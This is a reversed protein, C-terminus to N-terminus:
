LIPEFMGYIEEVKISRKNQLRMRKINPHTRPLYLLVSSILHFDILSFCEITSYPITEIYEKTNGLDAMKKRIESLEDVSFTNNQIANKLQNM